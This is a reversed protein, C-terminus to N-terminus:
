KHLMELWIGVRNTFDDFYEARIEIVGVLGMMADWELSFFAGDGSYTTTMSKLHKFLLEAIQVPDTGTFTVVAHEEDIHSAVTTVSLRNLFKILPVMRHDVTAGHGENLEHMFTENM